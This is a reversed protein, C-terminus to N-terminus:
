WITSKRRKLEMRGDHDLNLKRKLELFKPITSNEFNFTVEDDARETFLASDDSIVSPLGFKASTSDSIASTSDSVNSSRNPPTLPNATTGLAKHLQSIDKRTYFLIYAQCKMVADGLNVMQLKADNCHVWSDLPQFFVLLYVLM